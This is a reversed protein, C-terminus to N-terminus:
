RQYRLAWEEGCSWCTGVAVAGDDGDAPRWGGAVRVTYRGAPVTGFAVHGQADSVASAAVTGDVRDVLDVATGTIAEGPDATYNGNDDHYVVGGTTGPPAAVHADLNVRPRGEIPGPDSGFDCAAYFGGYQTAASPVTGSETFTRSEGPALDVAAAPSLDTWSGWGLLHDDSGFRDCGVAVGHLPAGSVNTLTFTVQVPDGVQYTARDFAGTAHLKESLPRLARLNRQPGPVSGDVDVYQPGGADSVWGDPLRYSSIGYRQAPLDTFTFQGDAGTTVEIPSGSGSGTLYAVAGALGEGADFAGNENRDGYVVGSASGRTTTPDTLPVVLDGPQDWSGRFREHPVDQRWSWVVATVTFSRTAGADLDVGAQPSGGLGAWDQISLYSGSVHEDWLTVKTLPRDTTNTLTLTIPFPRGVLQPGPDVAATIVLQPGDAHAAPVTLAGATLAAALVAFLRRVGRLPTRSM